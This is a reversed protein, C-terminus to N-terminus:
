KARKIGRKKSGSYDLVPIPRARSSAMYEYIAEIADEVKPVPIPRQTMREVRFHSKSGLAEIHSAQRGLNNLAYWLTRDHARLWVFQASALVGGENRATQLAKMMATAVFASKNAETLVRGSLEKNNFVARAETLLKRDNRLNFGRNASWCQAARGLMRDSENRKRAARLCFAALLIQQHPKLAKPGKWRGILQKEFARAAKEKDVRGDPVPINHYALWEEPGLAEAFAPLEAPVPSGPPRAPKKSPNFDIFPSIAPFNISQRKILRDITLKEKHNTGPGKFMCWFAGLFAIGALVYRLPHFALTNFLVLHNFGLDDKRYLPTSEFGRLWNLERGNFIIAYDPDVARIVWSLAWMWGYRTWRVINRVEHDYYYWFIFFLVAFVGLLIVWGIASDHLTEDQNGSM